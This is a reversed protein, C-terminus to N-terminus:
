YIKGHPGFGKGIKSALFVLNTGIKNRTAEDKKFLEDMFTIQMCKSNATDPDEQFIIKLNDIADDPTAGIFVGKAHIRKLKELYTKEYGLSKTIFGDATGDYTRPYEADNHNNKFAVGNNKLLDMVMHVPAKGVRAAGKTEITPEFKLNDYKVKSGSSVNQRMQFSFWGMKGADVFFRCDTSEFKKAGTNKFETEMNCRPKHSEGTGMKFSGMQAINDVKKQFKKTINVQVYTANKSTVKKLSIGMVQKNNYLQRMIMNLKQLKADTSLTAGVVDREILATVKAEDRILWVDAPNWNDKSGKVKAPFQELVTNTIYDMFGGERNIDTFKTSGVHPLLAKNQKYFNQIWEDEVDPVRYNDWWIQKLGKYAEGNSRLKIDKWNAYRRNQNIALDFIYASGLEQLRTIEADKLDQTRKLRPDPNQRLNDNRRFTILQLGNIKFTIEDWKVSEVTAGSARRNQKINHLSSEDTQIIIPLSQPKKTKKLLPWTLIKGNKRNKDNVNWKGLRSPTRPPLASTMIKNVEERDSKPPISNLIKEKTAFVFAM